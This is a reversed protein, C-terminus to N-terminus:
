ASCVLTEYAFEWVCVNLVYMSGCPRRRTIRPPLLAKKKQSPSHIEYFQVHICQANV